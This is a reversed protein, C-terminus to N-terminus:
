RAFQGGTRCCDKLSPNARLYVLGKATASVYGFRDCLAAACRASPAPVGPCQAAPRHQINAEWQEVLVEAELLTDFSERKLLEDRLKGNFADVYGNEWPSGPEISLTKM